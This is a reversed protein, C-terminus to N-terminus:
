RQWNINEFPAIVIHEGTIKQVDPDDGLEKTLQAAADHLTTAQASAASAHGFLGVLLVFAFVIQSYRNTHHLKKEGLSRGARLRCRPVAPKPRDANRFGCAERPQDLPVSHRKRNSSVQVDTVGPLSQLFSAVQGSAQGPESAMQVTLPYQEAHATLEAPIDQSVTQALAALAQRAAQPKDQGFGKEEYDKAALIRGTDVQIVRLNASAVYSIIGGNTQSFRADVRGAIVVNAFCHTGLEIATDNQGSLTQAALHSLPQQSSVFNADFVQFQQGALAGALATEVMPSEVRVGDVTEPLLTVIRFNSVGNERVDQTLNAQSQRVEVEVSYGASTKKQSLVIANATKLQATAEALSATVADFRRLPVTVVRLARRILMVPPLGGLLRRRRLRQRSVRNCMGWWSFGSSLSKNYVGPNTDPLSPKTNASLNRNPIASPRPLRICTDSGGMWFVRRLYIM